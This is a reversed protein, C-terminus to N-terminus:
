CAFEAKIQAIFNALRSMTTFFRVGAADWRYIDTTANGENLWIEAKVGDEGRRLLTLEFSPESPEFLVKDRDARHLDSLRELLHLVEDKPSRCLICGDISEPLELRFSGSVATITYRQWLQEEGDSQWHGTLSERRGPLIELYSIFEGDDSELKAM